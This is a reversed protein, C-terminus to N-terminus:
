RGWVDWSLLLGAAHCAPEYNVTLREFPQCRGVREVVPASGPEYVRHEADLGGGVSWHHAVDSQDRLDGKSKEIKEALEGHEKQNQVAYDAFWKPVRDDKKMAM